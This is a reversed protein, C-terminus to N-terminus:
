RMGGEPPFGVMAGGVTFIPRGNPSSSGMPTHWSHRLYGLLFGAGRQHASSHLSSPKNKAHALWHNEFSCNSSRTGCAHQQWHTIDDRQGSRMFWSPLRCPRLHEPRQEWWGAVPACDDVPANTGPRVDLKGTRGCKTPVMVPIDLIVVVVASSTEMVSSLLPIVAMAMSMQHDVPGSTEGVPLDHSWTDWAGPVKFYSWLFVTEWTTVHLTCRM